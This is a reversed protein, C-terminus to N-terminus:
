GKKLKSLVLARAESSSIGREGERLAKLAADLRADDLAQQSLAVLRQYSEADQVVVAAEGNVTLVEPRGTEKLDSIHAKSNRLFDTLPKIDTLEIM